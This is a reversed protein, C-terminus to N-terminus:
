GLRKQMETFLETFEDEALNKYYESKGAILLVRAGGEERLSGIIERRFFILRWILALSSILFGAYLIPLGHEKIVSFRVWLPMQKMVLQYGNGFALTGGQPIIGQGMNVGDKEVSVSFVPNNFEKTRTIAHGNAVAYDPYFYVRFVFGALNFSDLKGNMVSLKEFAGEIDKGSADRVIFLPAPGVDKLVFASSDTNYPDNIDINRIKGNGLDLRVKLATPTDGKAEPRIDTIVFSVTPPTGIKPMKELPKYREVEGHFPEGQALDLIGVFKSYVSILGGVLILFFSLHFLGFAVPAYRNKVGCFRAGSGAVAYGRSRLFGFVAASDQRATLPYSAHFSFGPAKEPDVKAPDPLAIRMKILPIRQWMVLSLNLFFLLWLVVILPSTYITTLRLADLTALVMPANTKWSIYLQENILSKQPIWLGLLFMGSLLCILLLTFRTSRLFKLVKSIM